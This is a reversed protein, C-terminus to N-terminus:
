NSKQRIFGVYLVLYVLFYLVVHSGISKRARLITLLLQRLSPNTYISLGVTNGKYLRAERVQLAYYM